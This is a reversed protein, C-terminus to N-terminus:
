NSKVAHSTMISFELGSTVPTTGDWRMSKEIQRVVPQGMAARTSEWSEYLGAEFFCQAKLAKMEQSAAAPINAGFNVGNNVQCWRALLIGLQRNNQAWWQPNWDRLVGLKQLITQVGKEESDCPGFGPLPQAPAASWQVFLATNQQAHEAQSQKWRAFSQLYPVPSEDPLDVMVGSLMTNLSHDRCIKITIDAPGCVAFRKYVGNWFQNIRATALIPLQDFDGHDQLVTGEHHSKITVTYDRLRNQGSHGNDNVDYLSMLFVGQPFSLTCYLDPGEQMMPYAEGHDDWSAQRRDRDRTTLGRIVRSDLYVPPIELARRDQTYLTSVWYRLSDDATHHPGMTASYFIPLPGAGWQYDSPSCIACLVSWFKGYRGLWDGGTRWDDSLPAIMPLKVNAGPPQVAAMEQLRRNMENLDPPTAGAPFPATAIARGGTPDIPNAVPAGLAVVGNGYTGALPAKSVQLPMASIYGNSAAGLIALTQDARLRLRQWGHERYGVYIAGTSDESLCTCYDESLIAGVPETWGAPAGDARRRVKEAWNVGRMYQWSKGRDHSWALGVNTAAFITGDRAVLIDNILNTPLGQGFPEPPEQDACTVQRWAHYGDGADAMVIGDCQTALYINGQADFAISNAQDSPMGDARLDARTFYSWTNNSVSYQALGCNTAMWVDGDTPCVAIHFVREGLPGSLSDPRSIGGVVDYNRWSDGNYVSVGHNLHGVWIRGLTDCAIAYGNDDALTATGSDDKTTFRALPKGNSDLKLVGGGETGAWLNGQLDTCMALIFNSSNDAAVAPTRAPARAPARGTTPAAAPRAPRLRRDATAVYHASDPIFVPGVSDPVALPADNASLAPSRAVPAALGGAPPIMALASERAAKTAQDLPIREQVPQRPASPTSAVSPNANQTISTGPASKQDGKQPPWVLWAAGGALGILVLALLAL